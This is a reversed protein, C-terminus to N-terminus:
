KDLEHLEQIMGEVNLIKLKSGTCSILGKEKLEKIVRNYVRLTTGLRESEANKDVIIIDRLNNKELELLDHVINYKIPHIISNTMRELASYWKKTIHSLVLESLEPSSFIKHKFSNASFVKARVKTESTVTFFCPKDSFLELLGIFGINEYKGISFRRGNDKQHYLAITGEIIFYVENSVSDGQKFIDEGPPISVEKAELQIYSSQLAELLEFTCYLDGKTSLM